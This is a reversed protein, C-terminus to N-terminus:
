PFAWIMKGYMQFTKVLVIRKREFHLLLALSIDQFINMDINDHTYIDM